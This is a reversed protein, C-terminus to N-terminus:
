AAISRRGRCFDQDRRAPRPIRIDWRGENAGDYLRRGSNPRAPGYCGVSIKALPKGSNSDLVKGSLRHGTSAVFDAQAPREVSVEVGEVAPATLSPQDSGRPVNGGFLVNFKGPSLGGIAYRGERDTVAGGFMVFGQAVHSTDQAQAIVQQSALPKGTGADVVRGQIRGARALMIRGLDGTDPKIAIRTRQWDLDHPELAGRVGKPLRIDFTGNRDTMVSGLDEEGIGYQNVGHNAADTLWDVAM